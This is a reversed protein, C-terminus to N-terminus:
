GPNIAGRLSTRFLLQSDFGELSYVSLTDLLVTGSPPPIALIEANLEPTVDEVKAATLHPTFPFPSATFKLGSNILRKHLDFFPAAPVPEFYYVGSDPFTTMRVFGVQFPAVEGAVKEVIRYASEADQGCEFVGVGSSGTVTIEVPLPALAPEYRQRLKRVYDTIRPPAELVVYTPVIFSM